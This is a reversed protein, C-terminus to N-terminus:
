SGQANLNDKETCLTEAQLTIWLYRGPNWRRLYFNAQIKVLCHLICACEQIISLFLVIVQEASPPDYEYETLSAFPVRARVRIGPGIPDLVLVAASLVFVVICVVALWAM